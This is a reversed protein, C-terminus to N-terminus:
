LQAGARAVAAAAARWGAGGAAALLAAVGGGARLLGPDGHRGDDHESQVRVAAREASEGARAAGREQGLRERGGAPVAAQEARRVAAVGFVAAVRPVAATAARWGGRQLSPGARRRNAALHQRRVRAPVARARLVHRVCAPVAGAGGRARRRQARAAPLAHQPLRRAAAREGGPQGADPRVLPVRRAPQVRLQEPKERTRPEDARGAGGRVAGHAGARRGCAGMARRFGARPLLRRVQPGDAAQRDAGHGGGEADGRVRARLPQHLVAAAGQARRGGGAPESLRLDPLDASVPVGQRDRPHVGDRPPGPLQEPGGAGAAVGPEARGAPDVRGEQDREAARRREVQVAGRQGERGDGARGGARAPGLGAPGGHGDARVPQHASAAARDGAGDGHDAVDQGRGALGGAPDTQAAAARAARAEPELVDDTRRLPLRRDVAARGGADARLLAGRRLSGGDGRCRQAFRLLGAARRAPRRGHARPAQRLM